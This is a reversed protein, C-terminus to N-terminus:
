KPQDLQRLLRDAEVMARLDPVPGQLAQMLPSLQESVTTNQMHYLVHQAGTLLRPDGVRKHDTLARCLETLASDGLRSLAEAAAWAVGPDNDQLAKVLRVIAKDNPHAQLYHGAMERELDSRGVDDLIALAQEVSTIMMAEKALRARM